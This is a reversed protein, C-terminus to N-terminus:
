RIYVLGREKNMGKGASFYEGGLRNSKDMQVSVTIWKLCAKVM